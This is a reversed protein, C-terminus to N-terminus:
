PVVVTLLAQTAISILTKCAEPKFDNRTVESLKGVADEVCYESEAMKLPTAM